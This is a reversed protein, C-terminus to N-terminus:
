RISINIVRENELDYFCEAESKVMAGFGNQFKVDTDILTIKGTETSNERPYFQAFPIWPFDPTGYKAVDVAAMKCSVRAQSIGRFNSILEEQTQCRSWDAKCAAIKAKKTNRDTVIKDGIPKLQAYLAPDHEEIGDMQNEFKTFVDALSAGENQMKYIPAMVEEKTAAEKDHLGKASIVILAIFTIVGVVRSALLKKGALKKPALFIALIIIGSAVAM